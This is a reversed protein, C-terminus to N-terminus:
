FFVAAFESRALDFVPELRRSPILRFRSIGLLELSRLGTSVKSRGAEFKSESRNRTTLSWSMRSTM